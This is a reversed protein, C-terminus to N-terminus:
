TANTDHAIAANRHNSERAASRVHVVPVTLRYGRRPLTEIPSSTGDHSDLIRRLRAIVQDLANDVVITGAWVRELLLERTVTNPAHDALALLVAMDKPRLRCEDEGLKLCLRDADVSASGIRVTYSM